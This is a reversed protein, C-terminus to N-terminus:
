KVALQTRYAVAAGPESVTLLAFTETLLAGCVPCSVNLAVYCGDGSLAPVGTRRLAGPSLRVACGSCRFLTLGVIGAM